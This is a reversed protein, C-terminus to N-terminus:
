YMLRLRRGATEPTAPNQRDICVREARVDEGCPCPCKALVEPQDDPLVILKIAYIGTNAGNNPANKVTRAM